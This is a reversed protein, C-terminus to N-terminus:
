KTNDPQAAEKDTEKKKANLVKEQYKRINYEEYRHYDGNDTITIGALSQIIEIVVVKTPSKLNVKHAPGIMAGIKNVMADKDFQKCM